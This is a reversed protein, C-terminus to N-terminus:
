ILLPDTFRALSSGLTHVSPSMILFTPVDQTHLAAGEKVGGKLKVSL